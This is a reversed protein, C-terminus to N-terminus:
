RQGGPPSPQVVAKAFEGIRALAATAEPLFELIQFVHATDPYRDIEARVGDRLADGLM